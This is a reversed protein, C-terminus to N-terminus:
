SPTCRWGTSRRRAGDRRAVGGVPAGFVERAVLFMGVAAMALLMAALPALVQWTDLGSLSSVAPSRTTSRTSRSGRRRCRTSRSRSTSALRIPTSSSTPARRRRRTRRLRHGRARRLAPSAGDPDLAVTLVIVALFVPWALRPLRSSRGAARGFRTSASRSERPSCSSSRSPSPCTRRVRPPDDGARGRLRRDAAGVAARLRAPARAAAAAVLGFGGVGFLVVMAALARLTDPVAVFADHRPPVNFHWCAGALALLIVGALALQARRGDLPGLATLALRAAPAQGREPGEVPVGPERAPVPAVDTPARDRTQLDM